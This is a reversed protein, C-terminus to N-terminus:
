QVSLHSCQLLPLISAHELTDLVRPLRNYQRVFLLLAAHKRAMAALHVRCFAVDENLNGVDGLKELIWHGNEGSIHIVSISTNPIRRCVLTTTPDAHRCIEEVAAGHSVVVVRLLMFLPELKSNPTSSSNAAM